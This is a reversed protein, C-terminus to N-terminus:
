DNWWKKRPSFNRTGLMQIRKYNEWDFAEGCHYTKCVPVLKKGKDINEKAKQLFREFNVGLSPEVFLITKGCSVTFRKGCPTTAKYVIDFELEEKKKSVTISLPFNKDVYDQDTISHFAGMGNHSHLVGICGEQIHFPEAEASVASVEKHPPIVLDEIFFNIEEKELIRGSLYGIWEQSPYSNMLLEIKKRPIPYLFVKTKKVLSCQVFEESGKWM